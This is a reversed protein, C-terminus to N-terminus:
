KAGLSDVPVRLLASLIRNLVELNEIESYLSPLPLSIRLHHSYEELKRKLGLLYQGRDFAEHLAHLTTIIGEQHFDAM